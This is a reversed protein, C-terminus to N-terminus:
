YGLYVDGYSRRLRLIARKGLTDLDIAYRM